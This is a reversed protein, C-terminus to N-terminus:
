KFNRKVGNYPSLRKMLMNGLFKGYYYFAGLVVGIFVVAGLFEM